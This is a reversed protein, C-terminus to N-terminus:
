EASPTELAFASLKQRLLTRYCTRLREVVKSEDFREEALTRGNQGLRAALAPDDLLCKIKEVLALNNKIPILFGNYCDIVTERCGPIDTAVVPRSMAAAEMLSRPFGERYSPLVVVDMVSYLEPMDNRSKLVIVRDEIGLQRLISFDVPDRESALSTGVTLFSVKSKESAIFRAAEFFERYGKEWVYRGIMGVVQHDEQVGIEQKKLRIQEPSFRGAYFLAINIGNGLYSIRDPRYIKQELVTNIDESSQSLIHDSILGAFRAMNILFWRRLSSMRSRFYFGHNTYLVIPVRALRAALQGILELKATHTHVITYREQRMISILRWLLKLDALPSIKREVEILHFKIGESQFTPVLPGDGCLAHVEFGDSQLARLQPWLFLIGLDGLTIHAVKLPRSLNMRRDFMALSNKIYRWLKM